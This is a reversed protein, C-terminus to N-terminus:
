RNISINIHNEQREAAKGRKSVGKDQVRRLKQLVEAVSVAQLHRSCLERYIIDDRLPGLPNEPAKPLKGDCVQSTQLLKPELHIKAVTQGVVRVLGIWANEATQAFHSHGLEPAPRYM